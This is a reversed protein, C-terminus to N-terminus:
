DVKWLKSLGKFSAYVIEKLGHNESTGFVNGLFVVPGRGALLYGLAETEKNTMPLRPWLGWDDPAQMMEIDTMAKTM